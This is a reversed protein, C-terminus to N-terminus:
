SESGIRKIITNDAQAQRLRTLESFYM